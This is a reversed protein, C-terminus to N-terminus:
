PPAETARKSREVAWARALEGRAEDLCERSLTTPAFRLSLVPRDPDGLFVELWLSQMTEAELPPAESYKYIGIRGRQGGLSFPVAFGHWAWGGGSRPRGDGPTMYLPDGDVNGKLEAVCDMLFQKLCAVTTTVQEFEALTMPKNIGPPHEMQEEFHQIAHTNLTSESRLSRLGQVLEEWAIFPLDGDIKRVRRCLRAPALLVSGRIHGAKVALKRRSQDRVQETVGSEKWSDHTKVEVFAYFPEAQGAFLLWIDVRAYDGDETKSLRAERGFGLLEPEGTVGLRTLVTRSVFSRVAHDLEMILLLVAACFNERHSGDFHAFGTRV